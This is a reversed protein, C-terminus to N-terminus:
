PGPTRLLLSEPWFAFCSFISVDRGGTGADGSVWCGEIDSLSEIGSIGGMGFDTPAVRFSLSLMGSETKLIGPIGAEWVDCVEPSVAGEGIGGMGLGASVAKVTGGAVGAKVCNIDFSLVSTGGDGPVELNGPFGELEPVLIRFFLDETLRFFLVKDIDLGLLESPDTPVGMLVVNENEPRFCLLAECVMGVGVTGVKLM